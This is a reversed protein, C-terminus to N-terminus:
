EEEKGNGDKDPALKMEEQGPVDKAPKESEPVRAAPPSVGKWAFAECRKIARPSADFKHKMVVSLVDGNDDVEAITLQYSKVKVAGRYVDCKRVTELSM